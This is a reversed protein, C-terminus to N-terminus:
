SNGSPVDDDVLMAPDVADPDKQGRGAARRCLWIHLLCVRVGRRRGETEAGGVVGREASQGRARLCGSRPKGVGRHAPVPRPGEGVEVRM